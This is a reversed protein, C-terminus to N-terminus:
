ARIPGTQPTVSTKAAGSTAPPDGCTPAGRYKLVGAIQGLTSGLRRHILAGEAMDKPGRRLRWAVYRRTWRRTNRFLNKWASEQRPGLHAYKEAIKIEIRSYAFFQRYIGELDERFRYHMVAEPVAHLEFGGIFARICFEDDEPHIDPDFGGIADFLRRTFGMTSGMTWPCYPAFNLRYIGNESVSRYQGTPGRNLRETEHRGSVFDYRMLAEAMAALWGPAPVDDADCQILIDSRAEAVGCNLAYSKGARDCADVMRMSIHPHRAAFDMFIARSGDTSGNDIFVFEWPKDWVQAAVAELAERLHPEGNRCAMIVTAAAPAATVDASM